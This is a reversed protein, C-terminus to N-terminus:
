HRQTSRRRSNLNFYLGPIYPHPHLGRRCSPTSGCSSPARKSNAAREAGRRVRAPLLTPCSGRTDTKGTQYSLDGRRLHICVRIPGPGSTRYPSVARLALYAAPHRDTYGYAFHAELLVLAGRRRAHERYHEVLQRTRTGVRVRECGEVDFDDSPLSFFANYRTVFTRTPVGTLM